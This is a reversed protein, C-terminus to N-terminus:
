GWNLKEKLKRQNLENLTHDHTIAHVLPSLYHAALRHGESLLASSFTGNTYSFTGCDALAGRAAQLPTPVLLPVFPLGNMETSVFAPSYLMTDIKGDLEPDSQLEVALGSAFHHVFAKSSAYLSFGASPHKEMVSGVNILCSREERKALYDLAVRSLFTPQVLNVAVMDNVEEGTLRDFPGQHGLGANNVVIAVDKSEFIPAFRKHYESIDTFKSFDQVQIDILIKKDDNCGDLYSYVEAQAKKLKDECSSVMILNFKQEALVKCRALGIGESAGTVLAWSREEM